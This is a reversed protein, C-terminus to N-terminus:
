YAKIETLEAGSHEWTTTTTYIYIQLILMQNHYNSIDVTQPTSFVMPFNRLINNNKDSLRLYGDYGSFDIRSSDISFTNADGSEFYIGPCQWSTNRRFYFTLRPIYFKWGSQVIEKKCEHLSM